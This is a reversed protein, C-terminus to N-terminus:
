RISRSISSLDVVKRTGGRQAKRALRDLTPAKYKPAHAVKIVVTNATMDHLTRRDERLGFALDVLRIIWNVVSFFLAPIDWILYRFVFLRPLPVREYTDADVIAIKLLRKGITQGYRHLLVGHLVLFLGHTLLISIWIRPDFLNFAILSLDENRQLWVLIPELQDDTLVGGFFLSLVVIIAVAASLFGLILADIVRALVREMITALEYEEWDSKTEPFDTKPAQYPNFTSSM